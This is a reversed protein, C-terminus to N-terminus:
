GITRDALLNMADVLAAQPLEEITALVSFLTEYPLSESCYHGCGVPRPMKHKYMM